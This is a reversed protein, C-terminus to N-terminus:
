KVELDSEVLSVSRSSFDPMRVGRVAVPPHTSSLPIDVHLPAGFYAEGEVSVHYMKSGHM